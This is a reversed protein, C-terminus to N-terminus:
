RVTPDFRALAEEVTTEKPEVKGIRGQPRFQYYTDLTMRLSKHDVHHMVDKPEVREGTMVGDVLHVVCTNRLDKMVFDLGLAAMAPGWVQQRLFSPTIPKDTIRSTNALGKEVKRAWVDSIGLREGIARYTLGEERRLICVQAALDPDVRQVGMAPWLLGAIDNDEVYARLLTGMPAILGRPGTHRRQKFNDRFFVGRDFDFDSATLAIAEGARTGQYYATLWLLSYDPFATGRRRRIEHFVEWVQEHTMIRPSRQRTARPREGRLLEDLPNVPILHDRVASALIQNLVEYVKHVTRESRGQRRMEAFLGIAEKSTVSGIRHDAFGWRTHEPVLWTTIASRKRLITSDALGLQEQVGMWEQVYDGFAREPGDVVVTNALARLRVLEQQAEQRTDWTSIRPRRGEYRVELKWRGQARGGRKRRYISASRLKSLETM